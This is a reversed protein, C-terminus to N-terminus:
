ASQMSCPKTGLTVLRSAAALASTTLADLVKKWKAVPFCTLDLFCTCDVVV